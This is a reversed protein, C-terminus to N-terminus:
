PAPESSLRINMISKIGEDIGQAKEVLFGDPPDPILVYRSSVESVKKSEIQKSISPL